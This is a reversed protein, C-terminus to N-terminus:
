ESADDAYLYNNPNKFGSSAMDRVQYEEERNRNDQMILNYEAQIKEERWTTIMNGVFAKLEPPVDKLAIFKGALSVRSYALILEAHVFPATSSALTEPKQIGTYQFLWASTPTPWLEITLYGSSDKGRPCFHSPTGTIKRSSDWRNLEDISIRKLETDYRVSQIEAVTSALSYVNQFITFDEEDLDDSGVYVRDLTGSTKSVYTFTYFQNEGALRIRSGTMATTWVTDTGTLATSGVAVAVSSTDDDQDYIATTALRYTQELVIWPWTHAIISYNNIIDRQVIARPMGAFVGHLDSQMELYTM